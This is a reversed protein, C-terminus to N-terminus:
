ELRLVVLEKECLIVVALKDEEGQQTKESEIGAVGLVKGPSSSSSNNGIKLVMQKGKTEKNKPAFYVFVNGGGGGGGSTNTTTSTTTLPPSDIALVFQDKYHFIFRTDRKTALVFALAPFTSKHIWQYSPKNSSTSPPQFLLGDVDHKITISSSFTSSNSIPLPTSLLSYPITSHPTVIRPPKVQQQEIWSIIFKKGIESDIEVDMEDGMLSTPVGNGLGEQSNAVGGGQSMIGRTWKEMEESIKVLESPDLTELIEEYEWEERLETIKEEESSPKTTEFVNSWKTGSHSKELHLTLIGFEGEKESPERDFTWVSTHPDIEGWWKKHSIKPLSGGSIGGSGGTNSTNSSSLSQKPSNINLTLYNRSITIRISSTPTTTPIPFAVTLSSSDQTWSFPSPKTPTPIPIPTSSSSSSTSPPSLSIMEQDKTTSTTQTPLQTTVTTSTSSSSLPTLPSSSILYYRLLTSDFGVHFPLDHNKFKWESPEVEVVQEISESSQQLPLKITFYEFHTKSILKLRSQPVVTAAAAGPVLSPLNEEEEEEEEQNDKISERKATSLLVIVEEAGQQQSIMDARHLLVSSEHSSNFTIKFKKMLKGSLTQPNISILYLTSSIGDSILWRTESLISIVPYSSSSSSSPPPPPTPLKLVNYFTPIATHKDFRVAKINLDREIWVLEGANRTTVLHNHRARDQIQSFSWSSFNDDDSTSTTSEFRNPLPFSTSTTSTPLSLKYSEFKPNLLTRDTPFSLTDAVRSM